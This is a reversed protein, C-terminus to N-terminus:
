FPSGGCTSTSMPRPSACLHEYRPDDVDLAQTFVLQDLVSIGTAAMVPDSLFEEVWDIARPHAIERILWLAAAARPGTASKTPAMRSNRLRRCSSTACCAKPWSGGTAVTWYWTSQRASTALIRLSGLTGEHPLVVPLPLAPGDREISQIM